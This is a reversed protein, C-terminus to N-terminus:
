IIELKFTAWHGDEIAINTNGMYWGSSGSTILYQGPYLLPSEVINIPLSPPKLPESIGQTMKPLLVKDEPHETLKPFRTAITAAVGFGLWKLFDRRKM